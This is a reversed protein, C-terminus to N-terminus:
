EEAHFVELKPFTELEWPIKKKKKKKGAENAAANTKLYMKM